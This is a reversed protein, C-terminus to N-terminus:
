ERERAIKLDQLMLRYVEDALKRPDVAGANTAGPVAPAPSIAAASGGAEPARQLAPSPSAIPPALVERSGAASQTPVPSSPSAQVTVNCILRQIRLAM